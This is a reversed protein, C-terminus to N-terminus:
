VALPGSFPLFLVALGVVVAERPTAPAGARVVAAISAAMGLLGLVRVSTILDVGLAGLAATALVWLLNSYGEVREGPNWTLGQGEILRKAYRLSILADDCLFPFYRRAHVGLAVLAAGLVVWGAVRSRREGVVPARPRLQPGRAGRLIARARRRPRRPHAAE